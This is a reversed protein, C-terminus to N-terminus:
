PMIPSMSVLTYRKYHVLLRKWHVSLSTSTTWASSEAQMANASDNTSQCWELTVHREPCSKDSNSKRLAVLSPYTGTDSLRKSIIPKSEFLHNVIILPELPMQILIPDVLVIHSFSKFFWMIACIPVLSWMTRGVWPLPCQLYCLELGVNTLRLRFASYLTTKIFSTLSHTSQKAHSYWSIGPNLRLSTSCRNGMLVAKPWVLLQSM